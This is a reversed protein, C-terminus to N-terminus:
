NIEFSALEQMLTSEANIKDLQNSELQVGSRQKTKLDEIQRLKKKLARIKKDTDVDETSVDAAGGSGQATSAVQVQNSAQNGNTHELKAKAKAERKKKNKSASASMAQGNKQNQPLEDEHIVLKKEATGRASPPRYAAVKPVEQMGGVIKPVPFIGVPQTQWKTQWLEGNKPVDFKQLVKGTYHWIKYGNGIRLRPACTSTVLHQGDPCWEMFTTDAAQPKAVMKRGDVNWMEMYGNLNGFGCLCLINGHPNFSCINRPGTGFDFLPECKLDFLTAKAPMYGYVVCFQSSNPNWEVSYIPGRKELHILNSEGQVNMFHLSQEGYYSAGTTDKDSSVLIILATGKNNWMMDVKDAKFFSKNALAQGDAFNPYQFLRVASPQGKKGQVYAAIMYPERISPSISFGAVGQLYLKTAAKHFEGGTYFQVENTVCRGCIAEDKSWIPAWGVQNKHIMSKVVTNTEMDFIEFNNSGQPNQPTTYYQEWTALYRNKPSIVIDITKQKDTQYFVSGDSMSLVKLVTGNGYALLSGDDSFCIVRVNMSEDRILVDNTSFNDRGQYLILGDSGRTVLIPLNVM